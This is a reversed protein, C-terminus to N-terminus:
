FDMEELLRVFEWLARSECIKAGLVSQGYSLEKKGGVQWIGGELCRQMVPVEWDSISNMGEGTGGM